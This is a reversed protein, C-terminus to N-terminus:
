RLPHMRSKSQMGQIAQLRDQHSTTSATYRCSVHGSGDLRFVRGFTSRNIRQDLASFKEMFGEFGNQISAFCLM